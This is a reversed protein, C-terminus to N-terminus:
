ILWDEKEPHISVEWKFREEAGCYKCLEIPQERLKEGLEQWNTQEDFIDIGEQFHLSIGYRDFFYNGLASFPCKYIKGDRLFQCTSERCSQQAALPDNSGTLDINKGFMDVSERFEYSVGYEDLTSKIKDELKIVPIYRTISVKVECAALGQLIEYKLTPILIGNTVLVIQTKPMYKRLCIIYDMIRESVLAEGGLLNFLKIYIKDALFKIDREFIEFPIQSGKEFLNSFHSCGKCNLNCYDVVNTELTEMAPLYLEKDDNWIINDDSKLDDKIRLKEYYVRNNIIGWKGVKMESLQERIMYGDWFAVLVLETIRNYKELFTAPSVIEIDKKTKAAANNDVICVINIKDNDNLMEIVYSGFCGAGWIAINM